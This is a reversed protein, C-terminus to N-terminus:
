AGSDVRREGSGPKPRHFPVRLVFAEERAEPEPWQGDIVQRCASCTFPEGKGDLDWLRRCSEPKPESGIWYHIASNGFPKLWRFWITHGDPDVLYHWPHRCPLM